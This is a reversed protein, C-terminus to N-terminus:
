VFIANFTKVKSCCVVIYVYRNHLRGRCLLYVIQNSKAKTNNKSTLPLLQVAGYYLTRCLESSTPTKWLLQAADPTCATAITLARHSLPTFLIADATTTWMANFIDRIRRLHYYM